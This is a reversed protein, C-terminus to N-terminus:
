ISFALDNKKDISQFSKLLFLYNKIQFFIVGKV